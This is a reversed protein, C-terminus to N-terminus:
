LAITSAGLSPDTPQCHTGNRKPRAQLKVVKCMPCLKKLGFDDDVVVFVISPQACARPSLSAFDCM